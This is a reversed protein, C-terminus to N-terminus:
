TRIVTRVLTKVVLSPARCGVRLLFRLAKSREGADWFASGARVLAGLGSPPSPGGLELAWLRSLLTARSWVHGEIEIEPAGELLVLLRAYFLAQEFPTFGLGEVVEPAIRGGWSKLPDEQGHQRARHSARAAITVFVTSAACRATTQDSHIRYRALIHPLNEFCHGEQLMRLWLDYDYASKLNLRYGGVSQFAERRMMVTPDNICTGTTMLCRAITNPSCPQFATGIRTGLVDVIDMAGGLVSIQPRRQLHDLQRELRSPIAMDDADMLAVLPARAAVIARNRAQAGGQNRQSLVRLRGDISTYSRLIELSDDSSGDDVAIIEIDSLTQDSLSRLCDSLYASANYVPVIVSVRPSM